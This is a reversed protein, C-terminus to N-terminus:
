PQAGGTHAILWVTADALSRHYETGASVRIRRALEPIWAALHERVFGERLRRVTDAGEAQEEELFRAERLCLYEACALELGVYDPPEPYGPALGLGVREYFGRVALASPGSVRGRVRGNAEISSDVYVSEYPTVYNPGPVMFLDHFDQRIAEADCDRAFRALAALHCAMDSVALDRAARECAALRTIQSQEPPGHYARALVGFTEAWWRTEAARCAM